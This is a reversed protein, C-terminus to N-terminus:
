VHLLSCLCILLDIGCDFVCPRGMLYEVTNPDSFPKVRGTLYEVTNPDVKMFETRNMVLKVKDESMDNKALQRRRWDQLFFFFFFIINIIFPIM